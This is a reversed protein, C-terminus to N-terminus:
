RNAEIFWCENDEDAIIDIGFFEFHHSSRQYQMYPVSASVVEAWLTKIKEFL